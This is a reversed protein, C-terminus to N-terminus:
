TLAPGLPVLQSDPPPGEGSHLWAPGPVMLGDNEVPDWPLGDGREGGKERYNEVKEGSRFGGEQWSLM